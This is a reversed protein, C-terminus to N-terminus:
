QAHTAYGFCCDNHGETITVSGDHCDKRHAYVADYHLIAHMSMNSTDNLNTIDKIYIIKDSTNM